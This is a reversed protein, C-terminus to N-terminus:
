KFTTYRGKTIHVHQAKGNPYIVVNSAHWASMGLNYGMRLKTLTGVCLHGDTKSPSHSHATVSKVNLNKFQTVSGRSGSAGRDGHLSLEYGLVNYSEDVELCKINEFEKELIYAIIGKPAFGQSTIYAYKLYEAKNNEKRWDDNQLWRDIFDNHNASPVIYNCEPKETFWDVVYQLEKKLSNSGDQERKLLQFPNKKEHHSVSGGDFIDHLVVHKPTFKDIIGFSVDINEKHESTLHIDGLVIAEIKDNVLVNGCQVKYGLDYFDGDKDAVIQRIHFVDGDLEVVVCGLTHNFESQKGIKTDTYNQITVSGTTVLAKAPYGELVPLFKLHSRPHGIICSELGTLGNLGSLPTSATPQIKVDSLIVLHEHLNHRNADLYQLISNDWSNKTNKEKNKIAESSSLSNPNNYRGAIVLIEADIAQAYAEINKLLGKHVATNSQAWSVLFRQKTKDHQKNQAEKFVDTDEIKVVNNTVSMKQMKKRMQRGITDNFIINFDKCMKRAAPTVESGNEVLEKVFNIQEKTYKIKNM